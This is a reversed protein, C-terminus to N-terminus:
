PVWSMVVAVVVLVVNVIPSAVTEQVLRAEDVTVAISRVVELISSVGSAGVGRVEIM